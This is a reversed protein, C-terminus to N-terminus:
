PRADVWAGMADAVSDTAAPGIGAAEGIFERFEDGEMLLFRGLIQYMSDIGRERLRAAAAPGVGPVCDVGRWNGLQDRLGGRIFSDYKQVHTAAM